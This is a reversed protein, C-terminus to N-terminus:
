QREMLPRRDYCESAIEEEPEMVSEPMLPGAWEGSCYLLPVTINEQKTGRDNVPWVYLLNADIIKVPHPEATPTSRYWYWGPRKPKGTTWTL